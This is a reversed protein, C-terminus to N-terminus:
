AKDAVRDVGHHALVGAILLFGLQAFAEPQVRRHDNLVPAKDAPYQLAIEPDRVAVLPRHGFQDGLPQRGGQLQHQHRHGQRESIPIGSPTSDASRGSPQSACHIWVTENIPMESGVKTVPM